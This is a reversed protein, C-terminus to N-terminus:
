RDGEPLHQLMGAVPDPLVLQRQRMNAVLYSLCGIAYERVEADPDHLGKLIREYLRLSNILVTTGKLNDALM